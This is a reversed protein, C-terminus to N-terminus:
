SVTVIQAISPTGRATMAFLMYQGPPAVGSSTLGSLQYNGNSGSVSLPIRRQDSNTAHTSTGLRVLAFSDVNRDTSVSITQNYTMATPASTIVPRDAPTGDLNFLYPPTFIQVDPHNTNCNGCLGGGAALVRGDALLLSISHYNRPVSMTALPKFQETVPDFMEAAMVSNSDQFLRVQSQGGVVVVEGSPLLTSSQFARGNVMAPLEQVVPTGSTIDVIHARSSGAGSTYNPSGGVTLIRGPEFMVANGGMADADTGRTGASTLTGNGGTQIWHMNRSPGAHFVSGNEWGFLWTHNDGRNIGQVDSTAITNGLVNPLSRWSDTAFNYVEGNKNGRGGSWSGGVTFVDGNSLTTSANYGRAQNMDDADIWTDTAPDYISTESANSGGNVLIQGNALSAIGPCFMDHGTNSIRRNTSAGSSPDFIATETYGRSGGFSFRGHASWMLVRGDPLAGGAVAVLPTNVVPGWFGESARASLPVSGADVLFSQDLSGDCPQQTLVTGQASDGGDLCLDSHTARITDGLLTWRQAPDADCPWQVVGAGAAAGDVSLCQGSHVARFEFISPEVEIVNWRRHDPQPDGCPWLLVDTGASASAGAVDLCLNSANAVIPGPEGPEIPVTTPTPTPTPTPPIPTPTPTPPM